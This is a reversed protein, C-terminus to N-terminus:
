LRPDHEGMDRPLPPERIYAGAPHGLPEPDEDDREGFMEIWCEPHTGEKLQERHPASMNPFATQIAWGQERWRFYATSDVTLEGTKGCQMCTPTAIKMIM